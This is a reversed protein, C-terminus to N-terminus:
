HNHRVVIHRTVSVTGGASASFSVIQKVNLAGGKVLAALAPARPRVTITTSGQSRVTKEASGFVRLTARVRLKNHLRTVVNVDYTDLVTILGPLNTTISTTIAGGKGVSVARPALSPIPIPAAAISTPTAIPTTLTPSQPSIVSMPLFTFQDAPVPPSSASSTTVTIDDTAPASAPSVAVVETPSLVSYASAATSGFAVATADSFGSGTITVATGGAQPGTTPSIDTVTPPTAVNAASGDFYDDGSYIATFPGSANGTACSAQDSADLETPPCSPIPAGASLVTVNGTPTPSGTNAVDPAPSADDSSRIQPGANAAVTVTVNSDVTDLTTSTPALSGVAASTELALPSVAGNSPEQFGVAKCSTSGADPLCFVGDLPTGGGVGDPEIPAPTPTLSWGSGDWTEVVSVTPYGLENSDLGGGAYGVAVCADTSACSVGMLIGGGVFNAGLLGAAVNPSPSVSWSSGNWVEILTDAWALGSMEVEGAAVCFTPSACSVDYLFNSWGPSPADYVSWVGDNLVLSDVSNGNRGVAVCSTASSCSVSDLSGPAEPTDLSWSTGDWSEVFGVGLGSDYGAAFCATTSPCSIGGIVSHSSASEPIAVISWSTGDWAEIVASQQLGEPGSTLDEGGALCNSASSCSVSNLQLSGGPQDLAATSWTGASWIDADLAYHNPELAICYSTTPCSITGLGYTGLDPVSTDLSWTASGDTAGARVMGTVPAVLLAVAVGLGIAL